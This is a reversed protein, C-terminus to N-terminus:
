GCCMDGGRSTVVVSFVPRSGHRPGSGVLEMAADPRNSGCSFSREKMVVSPSKCRELKRLFASVRAKPCWGQPLRHEVM